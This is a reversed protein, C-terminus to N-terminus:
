GGGISKRGKALFDGLSNKIGGLVSKTARTASHQANFKQFTYSSVEIGCPNMGCLKIYAMTGDDVPDVTPDRYVFISEGTLDPYSVQINGSRVENRYDNTLVESYNARIWKAFYEHARTRADSRQRLLVATAANYSPAASERGCATGTAAGLALAKLFDRRLYERM